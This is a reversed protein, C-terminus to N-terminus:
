KKFIKMATVAVITSILSGFVIGIKALELYEHEGKFALLAIFLSMTFGIGCLMSIYYFHKMEITKPLTIIKLKKLLHVSFSIGVSKGVLLGVMIGMTVPHLLSQTFNLHSFDIGSNSFAFLPLILYNVYPALSKEFKKLPYRNDSVKLPIFMGLLVGAITSHVGSKLFFYWMCVGILLYPTLYRINSKNLLYLFLCCIIIPIFYVEQLPDSYFLTIIIVAILDDIIALATLFVRLSAPLNKGFVAFIGLAFAIDTAAPTAWGLMAIRDKFNFAVYILVPVVVGFCASVLPLLRAAKTNLHGDIVERKIEMGVVLFFGAMLFENVWSHVSLSFTKDGFSLSFYQEIFTHYIHALDSNAVLIAFLAASFLLLGKNVAQHFFLAFNILRGRM